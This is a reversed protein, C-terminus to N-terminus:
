APETRLGRGFGLCELACNLHRLHSTGSPGDQGFPQLLGILNMLAPSYEYQDQVSQWARTLCWSPQFYQGYQPHEGHGSDHM